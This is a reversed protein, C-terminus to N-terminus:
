KEFVILDNWSIPKSIVNVRDGDVMLEMAISHLNYVSAMSKGYAGANLFAIYNDENLMDYTYIYGVDPDVNYNIIMNQPNVFAVVEEVKQFIFFFPYRNYFLHSKIKM